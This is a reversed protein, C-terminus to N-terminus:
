CPVRGAALWRGPTGHPDVTHLEAPCALSLMGVYDGVGLGDIQHHLSLRLM